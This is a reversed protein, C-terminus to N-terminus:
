WFGAHANTFIGCPKFTAAVSPDHMPTTHHHHPATQRRTTTHTISKNKLLHSQPPLLLLVLWADSQSHAGATSVEYYSCLM